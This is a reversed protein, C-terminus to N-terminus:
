GHDAPEDHPDSREVRSAATLQDILALLDHGGELISEVYERHVEDLESMELLQAFGLISNLSSRLDHSVRLLLAQAAQDAPGKPKRSPSAPSRIRM